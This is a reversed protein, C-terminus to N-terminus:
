HFLGLLVQAMERGSRLLREATPRGLVTDGILFEAFLIHHLDDLFAKLDDSTCVISRHVSSVLTQTEPM